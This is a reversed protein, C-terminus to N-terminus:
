LISTLHKLDNIEYTVSEQHQNNHPNFFVTDLGAM